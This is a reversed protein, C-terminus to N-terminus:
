NGDRVPSSKFGATQVQQERVFRELAALRDDREQNNRTLESIQAKLQALEADQQQKLEQLAKVAILGFSGYKVTLSEESEGPPTMAGVAEPFLPQVEQAIVGFKLSDTDSGDKWRYRRVPMEMLRELVPEADTIDKKFKRDSINDWNGDGDWQAAGFGGSGGNGMGNGSIILGNASRYMQIYEAGGDDIRFVGGRVHLHDAPTATGIGVNGNGKIRMREVMGGSSGYGFAIDSGASDSHIQLLSSQIGFGYSSAATGWLTIKDGLVNAFSLPATPTTTGIGVNGGGTFTVRPNGAANNFHNIFNLSYSNGREDSEMTWGYTSNFHRLKLGARYLNGGATAVTVYQDPSGYGGIQLQTEPTLTGIGVNGGHQMFMVSSSANNRINFGSAGFNLYTANDTWRPWLFLEMAGGSNRAQINQTNDMFIGGGSIQLNGGNVHLRSQPSATGIGVNNNFIQNGVSFTNAANRMAVNAGLRADPITGTTIGGGDVANATKASIATQSLFSYPSTLLRLRPLIDVDAGGGGINKVTIGIWRDSATSNTFVSNLAPRLEGISSGEGLLVSFYGKDVTVTQQETWLNAGGSAANWIRFIVDYNKPANTGLAVGNADVLYGQYTLFDPPNANAQAEVRHTNLLFAIAFLSAAFAGHLRTTSQNKM